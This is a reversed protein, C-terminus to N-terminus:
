FGKMAKNHEEEFEFDAVVSAEQNFTLVDLLELRGGDTDEQFPDSDPSRIDPRREQVVPRIRLSYNATKGAVKKGMKTGDGDRLTRM